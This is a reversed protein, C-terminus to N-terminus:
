SEVGVREFLRKQVMDLIEDDSFGSSRVDGIWATLRDTTSIRENPRDNDNPVSSIFTGLGWRSQTFGLHELERYARHVTNPNITIQTVVERVPPLQDGPKLRGGIVAERVQDVLQRYPAIGRRPELRFRIFTEKTKM